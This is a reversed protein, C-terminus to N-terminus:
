FPCGGCGIIRPIRLVGCYPHATINLLHMGGFVTFSDGATKEGQRLLLIDGCPGAAPFPDVPEIV